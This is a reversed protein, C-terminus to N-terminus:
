VGCQELDYFTGLSVAAVVAAATNNIWTNETILAEADKNYKERIDDSLSKWWKNFGEVTIEGKSKLYRLQALTRGSRTKAPKMLRKGATSGTSVRAVTGSRLTPASALESAPESAPEPVLASAPLSDPVSTLLVPLPVPLPAPSSLPAVSSRSATSISSGPAQVSRPQRRSPGAEPLAGSPAFPSGVEPFLEQDGADDVDVGHLQAEATNLAFDEAYADDDTAKAKGKDKAELPQVEASPSSVPEQKVQVAVVLAAAAAAKKKRDRQNQMFSPYRIRALRVIKWNDDSALIWPFLAVLEDTFRGLAHSSALGWSEPAIGEVDLTHWITRCARMLKGMEQKSIPKGLETELFPLQTDLIGRSVVAASEIWRDYVDEEWWKVNPFDARTRKPASPAKKELKIRKQPPGETVSLSTTSSPPSSSIIITDSSHPESPRKVGHGSNPTASLRALANALTQNCSILSANQKELNAKATRLAYTENQLLMYATNFPVNSSNSYSQYQNQNQNWSRLQNGYGGVLSDSPAVTNAPLFDQHANLAPLQDVSDFLNMQPIDDM